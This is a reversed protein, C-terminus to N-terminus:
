AIINLVKADSPGTFCTGVFAEKSRKAAKPSM